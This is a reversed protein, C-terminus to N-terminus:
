RCTTSLNLIIPVTGTSGWKDDHSPASNLVPVAEGYIKGKSLVISVIYCNDVKIYNKKTKIELRIIM